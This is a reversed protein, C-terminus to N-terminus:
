FPLPPEQASVFKWEGKKVRKIKGEKLWKGLLRSVQQREAATNSLGMMERVETNTIMGNAFKSSFGLLIKYLNREESMTLAKSAKGDELAVILWRKLFLEDREEDLIIPSEKKSILREALSQFHQDLRTKIDTWKKDKWLVMATILRVADGQLPYLQRLKEIVLQINADTQNNYLSVKWRGYKGHETFEIIPERKGAEIMLRFIRSKGSGLEDSIGASRLVQMLLKNFPRHENSLWKNVFFAADLSCNNSICIRDPFLEVVVDGENKSYMSHAVANALVERLAKLPYPAEISASLSNGKLLTGQKRTWTQIEAIFEDKLINYLGFKEQQEIIDGQMDYWAIRVKFDGFLVGAANKQQIGLKNLVDSAALTSLEIGNLQEKDTLKEAYEMVLSSHIKGKYSAKSFDAGPLALTHKLKDAESMRHSHTGILCYAQGDWLLLDDISMVEIM